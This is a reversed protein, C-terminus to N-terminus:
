VSGIITTCTLCSSCRNSVISGNTSGGGHCQLIELVQLCRRKNGGGCGSDLIVQETVVLTGVAVAMELVVHSDWEQGSSSSNPISKRPRDFDQQTEFGLYWM